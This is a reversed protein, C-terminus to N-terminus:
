TSIPTHSCYIQKARQRSASYIWNIAHKTITTMTINELPQVLKWSGKDITITVINAHSSDIHTLLAAPLRAAVKHIAFWSNLMKVITAQDRQKAHAPEKEVPNAKNRTTREHLKWKDFFFLTGSSQGSKLWKWAPILSKQKHYYCNYVYVNMRQIYYTAKTAEDIRKISAAAAENTM